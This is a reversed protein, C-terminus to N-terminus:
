LDKMGILKLHAPLLAARRMDEDFCGRAFLFIQAPHLKASLMAEEMHQWDDQSLIDRDFNSFAVVYDNNEKQGIFDIYGKKGEFCGTKVFLVNEQQMQNIQLMIERCIQSFSENCFTYFTPSIVKDFFAEPTELALMSSNPYLYCFYFRAFHNSIRYIGKKQNDRDPTDFSFIKSVIEIEILHKLYVSIKARSFGTDHYLDNLKYNGQSISSLIADYVAPERFQEKVPRDGEYLLRSGGALINQCINEKVTLNRDFCQWLGPIGGLVSYVMVCEEATYASFYDRLDSFKLERVKLFGSISLAARGIKSVLDNEVFSISSSCLLIMIQSPLSKQLLTTLSVMFSDSHKVMQEFNELILLKKRGASFPLNQWIEGYGAPSDNALLGQARGAKVLLRLQREEDTECAQYYFVDKDRFFTKLLATKGVGRCGYIVIIQSCDKEYASNLYALENERGLIM